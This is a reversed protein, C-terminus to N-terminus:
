GPQDVQIERRGEKKYDPHFKSLVKERDAMSLPPFNKGQRAEAVRKPRSAEVKKILELMEPTYGM